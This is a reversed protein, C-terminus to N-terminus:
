LSERFKVIISKTDKLSLAIDGQNRANREIEDITYTCFRIQSVSANTGPFHKNIEDIAEKPETKGCEIFAKSLRNWLSGFEKDIFGEQFLVDVLEGLKPIFSPNSVAGISETAGSISDSLDPVQNLEKAKQIYFDIAITSELVILKELLQNSPNDHFLLEMRERLAAREIDPCVNMIMLAMEEDATPLIKSCIYEAGRLKNLYLLAEHRLSYGNISDLCVDLSRQIACSMDHELCFHIHDELVERQVKNQLINDKIRSILLEGSVKSEIFAYKNFGDERPFIYEPLETLNLISEASLAYDYQTALVLIYPIDSYYSITNDDNYTIPNFLIGAEIWRDPVSFIDEKQKESLTLHYRCLCSRKSWESFSIWDITQWFKLVSDTSEEMASHLEFRLENECTNIIDHHHIQLLDERTANPNGLRQQLSNFIEDMQPRDFLADFYEQNVRVRIEEYDPPPSFSKLTYGDKELILSSYKNYETENTISREIIGYFVEPKPFLNSLYANSLVNISKPADHLLIDFQYPEVLQPILENIAEVLSNTVNFFNLVSSRFGAFEKAAKIYCKTALYLCSKEGALYLKTAAQLLITVFKSQSSYEVKTKDTVFDLAIEISCVTHLSKLGEELAISENILRSERRRSNYSLYQIGELYYNVYKDQNGTVTLYEYMGSRIADSKSDSYLSVLEATIEETGLHHTALAFLVTRIIYEPTSESNQCCYMLSNRVCEDLSLLSPMEWIIRVASHQSTDNVPHIIKDILYRIIEKHCAFNALENDDFLDDRLLLNKREYDEFIRKFIDIRLADDVRDAEFKVIANPAHDKLWAMLAWDALSTFFGLVNVWSAKVNGNSSFLSIAEDKPLRALYKAALYERFNNHSFCWQDGRKQLLGSTKALHREKETFLRQYEEADDFYNKKMLQMSFSIEELLSFLLTEKEELEGDKKNDDESFQIRILTNMVEPRHPLSKANLYLQTLESLYFPNKLLSTTGSSEAAKFFDFVDINKQSVYKKISDSDLSCLDFVTLGEFTTSTDGLEKRCYNSRVTIFISSGSFKKTYRRLERRFVSQNDSSLEDYGDFLFALYQSPIVKYDDPILSDIAEGTYDRLECLIPFLDTASLIHALNKVEWSKGMGADSLLLMKGECQEFADKVSLKRDSYFGMYGASKLSVSHPLVTRPLYHESVADYNHKRKSLESLDFAHLVGQKLEEIKQYSLDEIPFDVGQNTINQELTNIGWAIVRVAKGDQTMQDTLIGVLYGYFYVPSGSVGKYNYLKGIGPPLGLQGDPQISTVAFDFRDPNPTVEIESYYGEAYVVSDGVSLSLKGAKKPSVFISKDIKLVVVEFDVWLESVPIASFHEVNGSPMWYFVSISKGSRYDGIVHRVTVIHKSSIFFGTGIQQGCKIQCITHNM